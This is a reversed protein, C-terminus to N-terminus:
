FLNFARVELLEAVKGQMARGDHTIIDWDKVPPM